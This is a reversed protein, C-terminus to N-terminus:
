VEVPTVVQGDFCLWATDEEGPAARPFEPISFDDAASATGSEPCESDGLQHRDLMSAGFRHEASVPGDAVPM